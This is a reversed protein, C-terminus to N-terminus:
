SINVRIIWQFSYKIKWSFGFLDNHKRVSKILVFKLIYIYVFDQHKRVEQLRGCDTGHERIEFKGDKEYEIRIYNINRFDKGVTIRKVGDFVGDDFAGGKNGGM